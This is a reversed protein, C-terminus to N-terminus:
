AARKLHQFSVWAVRSGGLALLAGLLLLTIAVDSSDPERLATIAPAIVAFSMVATWLGLAIVLLYKTKMTKTRDSTWRITAAALIITRSIQRSLGKQILLILGAM